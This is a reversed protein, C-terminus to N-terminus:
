HSIGYNALYELLRQNFVTKRFHQMIDGSTM